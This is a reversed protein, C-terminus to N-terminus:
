EAVEISGFLDYPAVREIRIPLIRGPEVPIRSTAFVAGDIEPAERYTRGVLRGSEEIGEVLMSLSQGILKEHLSLSIKQQIEMIGKRRANRTKKALQKMKAAPTGTMPSYAFVGVHDLRAETLFNALHEFHREEEGPFGVIFTSRLVLGPIESRLRGILELIPEQPRKMAQLIEPHSHQLPIDLYPLVKPLDRIKEILEQTVANPYAYHLRIWEIGDVENLRELLEPLLLKKSDSGYLTTDQAVLNIEKIGSEGLFKAEEIIEEIGRSKYPGRLQPIICFTCP